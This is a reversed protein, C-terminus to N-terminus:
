AQKRRRKVFYGGCALGTLAMGYTSPEPVASTVISFNTLDVDLSAGGGGGSSSSIARLEVSLVSQLAAPTLIAGGFQGNLTFDSLGINAEKNIFESTVGTELNAKYTGSSTTVWLNLATGGFNAFANSKTLRFATANGLNVPASDSNAYTIAMNQVGDGSLTAQILQRIQATGAGDPFDFSNIYFFAYQISRSTDSILVSRTNFLYNGTLSTTASAVSSEQGTSTHNPISATGSTNLFDDILVMGGIAHMEFLVLIAVCQLSLKATIRAHHLWRHMLTLLVPSAAHQRNLMSGYRDFFPPVPTRIKEM